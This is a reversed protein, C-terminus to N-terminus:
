ATEDMANASQSQTDDEYEAAAEGAEAALLIEYAEMERELNKMGGNWFSGLVCSSEMETETPYVFLKELPISIKLALTSQTQLCTSTSPPVTITSPRVPLPVLPAQTTSDDKDNSEEPLDAATASAILQDSLQCFNLIAESGEVNMNNAAESLEEEDPAM